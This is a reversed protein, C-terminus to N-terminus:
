HEELSQALVFASSQIKGLIDTAMSLEQSLLKLEVVVQAKCNLGMAKLPVSSHIIRESLNEVIYEPERSSQNLM